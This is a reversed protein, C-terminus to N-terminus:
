LSQLLEILMILAWDSFITKNEIRDGMADIRGLKKHGNLEVCVFGTGMPLKDDESSGAYGTIGIGIDSDLKNKVRTALANAVEQTVTGESTDIELFYNKSSESYIVLSFELYSSAGPLNTLRHAILGGTASEAIALKFKSKLLLDHAQEAIKDM